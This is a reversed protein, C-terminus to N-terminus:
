NKFESLRCAGEQPLRITTDIEKFRNGGWIAAKPGEAIVAFLLIHIRAVTGGQDRERECWAKKGNIALPAWAAALAILSFSVTESIVRPHLVGEKTNRIRPCPSSIDPIARSSMDPSAHVTINQLYIYIYGGM